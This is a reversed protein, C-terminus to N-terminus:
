RPRKQWVPSSAAKLRFEMVQELLMMRLSTPCTSERYLCSEEVVTMQLCSSGTGPLCLMQRQNGKQVWVSAASYVRTGQSARLSKRTAMPVWRTHVCVEMQMQRKVEGSLGRVKASHWSQTLTWIVPGDNSKQKWRKLKSHTCLAQWFHTGARHGQLTRPFVLLWIVKRGHSEGSDGGQHCPAKKWSIEHSVLKWRAHTEQFLPECVKSKCDEKM